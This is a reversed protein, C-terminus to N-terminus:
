LLTSTVAALVEEQAEWGPRRWWIERRAWRWRRQRLKDENADEEKDDDEDNDNDVEHRNGGSKHWPPPSPPNGSSGHSSQNFAGLLSIKGTDVEAETVAHEKIKKV